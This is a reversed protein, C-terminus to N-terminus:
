NYAFMQQLTECVEELEEESIRGKVRMVRLKDITKIQDLVAYSDEDLRNKPTAKIFIRTPLERKKSTIPVVIVTKQVDNMEDPSVILCPRTKNMEAGVTPDLGVVVIKGQKM